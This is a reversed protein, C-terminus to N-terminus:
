RASPPSFRVHCSIALCSGSPTPSLHGGGHGQTQSICLDVPRFPLLSYRGSEESEEEGGWRYTGCERSMVQIKTAQYGDM